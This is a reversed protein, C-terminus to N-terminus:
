TDRDKVLCWAMFVYQLNSTYSWANTVEASFPPSHDAERGVVWSGRGPRNGWPFLVQYGISLLSPTESCGYQGM